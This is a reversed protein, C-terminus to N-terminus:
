TTANWNRASSIFLVAIYLQSYFHIIFHMVVIVAFENSSICYVVNWVIVMNIPRCQILSLCCRKRGSLAVYLVDCEALMRCLM